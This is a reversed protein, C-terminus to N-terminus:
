PKKRTDKMKPGLRPDLQREKQKTNNKMKKFNKGGLKMQIVKLPTWRKLKYSHTNLKKTNKKRTRERIEIDKFCHDM